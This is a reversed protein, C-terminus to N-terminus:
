KARLSPGAADGSEGPLRDRKPTRVFASARGRIGDLVSRASLAAAYHHMMITYFTLACTTMFSRTQSGVGTQRLLHTSLLAMALAGTLGQLLGLAALPLVLSYSFTGLLIDIWCLIGTALVLPGFACGGLHLAADFKRRWPLNSRWITPLLKRTTQAFGKNWRCQQVGWSALSEPLEGPVAVCVLYLARWGRMQARYSLDLDETLTDAQWGGAAEIAARRWVGGTGNFPLFQGAWCRTPQEVAFHSELIVQQAHTVRNERANLFDCRAQVFALHPDDLLPRLCLRLFNPQPVYDADFVAVFPERTCALGAKLAGAKFGARHTRQILNVSYGRLHLDAVTARAIEASADTSDDLLQIQLRDRPWDLAVVADLVRQVLPGENFTPIQVLVAPLKDDTPLPRTLAIRERELGTRRHYLHLLVTQSVRFALALQMLLFAVLTIDATRGIIGLFASTM